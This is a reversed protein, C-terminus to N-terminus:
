RGLLILTETAFDGRQIGIRVKGSKDSLEAALEMPTKVPKGDVSKILDGVKLSAMEALGGPVIELIKAGDFEQPGVALGLAAIPMGHGPIGLQASQSAAVTTPQAAPSANRAARANSSSERKARPSEGSTEGGFRFVVGASVRINDQSPVADSNLHRTYMYDIPGLQVGVMHRYVWYDVGGGAAVAVSSDSVSVGSSGPLDASDRGVLAHAFATIKGSRSGFTYRPGGMYSFDSCNMGTIGTCDSLSHGSFDGEVAIHHFLNVAVSIDWGNMALRQSTTGTSPNAPLDFNLYSYGGFVNIEPINQASAIGLLFLAALAFRVLKDM